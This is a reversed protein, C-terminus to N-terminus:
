DGDIYEHLATRVRARARHLLVRQNGPTLQLAECAAAASWGEVDRLVIVARQASPLAEIARRVHAHTEATLLRQDVRGTWPRPNSVWHGAWSSATDAFFRPEVASEGGATEQQALSSFPVFRAERQGGTRARRVLIGFIWTRLSSRGEFRDLGNLVALWTEQVVDEAVAPSSAYLAAVRLMSRHHRSVIEVFAEEDRARLAELLAPDDGRAVRDARRDIVTM